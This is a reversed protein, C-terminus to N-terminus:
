CVEPFASCVSRSCSYGYYDSFRIVPFVAMGNGGKRASYANNYHRICCKDVGKESFAGSNAFLYAIKCLNEQLYYEAVSQKLRSVIKVTRLHKPIILIVNNWVNKEPCKQKTGRTQKKKKRIQVSYLLNTCNSKRQRRFILPSLSKKKGKSTKSPM